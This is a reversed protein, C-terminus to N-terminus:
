DADQPFFDFVILDSSKAMSSFARPAPNSGKLHCLADAIAKSKSPDAALHGLGEGSM